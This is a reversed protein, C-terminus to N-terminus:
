PTADLAADAQIVGHGTAEAGWCFTTEYFYVGSHDGWTPPNGPGASSQRVSRCGPPLPLSTSELIEEVQAQVVNPNKQLMLAAVGAVHPSSCSTGGFFSYDAQGNLTWAVPVPFGPAAVDLDQGPLARSSFAHMFHAGVDDEPVDGLSWVITTPDDAPFQHVWGSGAVSIVPSYAAPYAMGATGSNGASAVIVVGNAIARDIAAREIVDPDSGGLSLNVVLPANGLAGSLKLNTVYVLGRTMVSSWGDGWANNSIVKMPIVIARPAVGNFTAPLPPDLALYRCGLLVSAIATGHSNTDREWLNPPMSIESREGGGGAFARAHQTAIREEPFYTRWNHVLGTDLVAIYVGEGDYDVTRGADFDTVNIADLNWLNTGNNFDSATPGWAGALSRLRDPHAAVVYPEASIAPLESAEARLTVARIEPVVDLVQGHASLAVLVAENVERDLLVNLGIMRSPHALTTALLSPLLVGGALLAIGLHRHIPQRNMRVSRRHFM